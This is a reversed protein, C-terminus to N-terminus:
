QIHHEMRQLIRKNEEELQHNIDFLKKNSKNVWDNMWQLKKNSAQLQENSSALEQQTLALQKKQRLVYYVLFLLSISLLTFGGAAILLVKTHKDLTAQHNKDLAGLIPTIQSSRMGADFFSNCEWTYKIYRYSREEDGDESLLNALAVLAGQDMTGCLIDALASKGLWYRAMVEDGTNKFIAYRFYSAMAEGRSGAPVKNMWLDSVRLAEDTKGENLLATLSFNYYTDSAKDVVQMLSDRYLDRIPYYRQRIYPLLTFTGIDEYLHMFADYYDALGNQTLSDKDVERLLEGAEVYMGSKGCQRAMKARAQDAIDRYGLSDALTICEQIYKLASDNKFASYLDFLSIGNILKYDTETSELYIRKQKEIKEEFSRVYHPSQEIAQDIKGYLANLDIEKTQSLIPLCLLYAMGLFLSRKM